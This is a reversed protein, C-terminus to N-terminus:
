DGFEDQNPVDVPRTDIFKLLRKVAAIEGIVVARADQNMSDDNQKRLTELRADLYRRMKIVGPQTFEERSINPSEM